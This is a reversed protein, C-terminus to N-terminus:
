REQEMGANALWPVADIAASATAEAVLGIVAGVLIDSAYHACRPLQIAAATIALAAAAPADGSRERSWARAVAVAGATHGSPFSALDKDEADTGRELRYHGEDILVAPRSRDVSRKIATKAGTALLHAALMRLGLRTIEREKAALGYGITAACLAIMPPQDALEGVQGLAKVIPLDRLVAAQRAVAVDVQEVSTRDAHKRHKGREHKGM